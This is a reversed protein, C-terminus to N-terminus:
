VLSCFKIPKSLDDSGIIQDLDYMLDDQAFIHSVLAIEDTSDETLPYAVALDFAYLGRGRLIGMLYTRLAADNTRYVRSDMSGFLVRNGQEDYGSFIVLGDGAKM